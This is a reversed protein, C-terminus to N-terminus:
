RLGQLPFSFPSFHTSILFYSSVYFNQFPQIQYNSAGFIVKYPQHGGASFPSRKVTSYKPETKVDVRVCMGGFRLHSGHGRGDKQNFINLNLRSIVSSHHITTNEARGGM